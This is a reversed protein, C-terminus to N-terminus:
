LRVRRGRLPRAGAQLLRAATPGNLDADLVGGRRGGRALARAAHATVYSKGGGGKGSMVAILREVGALRQAVRRRQAMIQAVLGSRDPETLEHYTRIHVLCFIASLRNPPSADPRMPM